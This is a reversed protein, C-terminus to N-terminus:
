KMKAIDNATSAELANGASGSNGTQTSLVQQYNAEMEAKYAAVAAEAEMKAEKM